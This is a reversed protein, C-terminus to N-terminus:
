QHVWMARLYTALYVNQEGKITLRIIGNNEPRKINNLIKSETRKKLLIDKKELKLFLIKEKNNM